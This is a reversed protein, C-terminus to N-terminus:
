YIRAPFPAFSRRVKDLGGCHPQLDDGHAGKLAVM